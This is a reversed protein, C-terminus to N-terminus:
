VYTMQDKGAVIRPELGPCRAAAAWDEGALLWSQFPYLLFAICEPFYIMNEKKINNSLAIFAWHM